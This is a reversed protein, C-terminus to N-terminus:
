GNQKIPLEITFTAGKGEESEVKLTGGWGEVYSKVVYLGLGSGETNKMMANASRFFKVFLKKQDEKPIGIGYDRVAVIINNEQQDVVVEVTAPSVSYQIANAILNEIVEQVRLVDLFLDPVKQKKIDLHLTINTKAALISMKKVIKEILDKINLMQPANRIKKQDIRSISLLDRVLSLLRENSKYVEDFYERAIPPAGNLYGADKMAELYWKGIGLPTRLQHSALSVFETKARDIETDRTIDRFVEITGILKGKILIPTLTFNVPFKEGNKRAYYGKANVIPKKNSIVSSIPRDQDHVTRGAEDELKLVDVMPKGLIEEIAYGLMEQAAQNVVTVHGAENTAVLGDGISALMAEDKGKEVLISEKAQDLDEMVNLMARKTEEQLKSTQELERSRIKIAIESEKRETIDRSTLVIGEVGPTSILNVGVVEVWRWTGDKHKIREEVPGINSGPNSMLNTYVQQVVLTDEPYVVDNIKLNKFEEPSYGLVNKVSPTVFSVHFDKDVIFVIDKLNELIEQFREKSANIEMEANKQQTIDFSFILVGDEVPEMRLMFWTKKGDPYTFENDMGQMARQEMCRRLRGFMETKEIGPYVEMMTNGLLDEKKRRAHRVGVQNVYVYRFDFDIIQCGELLTDLIEQLLKEM